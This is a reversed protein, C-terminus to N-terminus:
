PTVYWSAGLAVLLVWAAFLLPQVGAPALLLAATGAWQVLAVVLLVAACAWPSRRCAWILRHRAHVM